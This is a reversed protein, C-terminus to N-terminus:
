GGGGPGVGDVDLAGRHLTVQDSGRDSPAGSSNLLRLDNAVMRGIMDEFSTRARWGLLRHAKSADGHIAKLDAPRQFDPDLDVYSRWNSIGVTEFASAVFQSLSRLVGTAIVFDGPEDQQLMIWMAEVYDPAYGWDRHVDLSGLVLRREYGSAVGAVAKTIKRTVFIDPRLESEHNFLIGCSVFMGYTDRYIEALQHAAVKSVAYPSTPHFPSSENRVSVSPGFMESSSAQYLRIGDARGSRRIGELLNILGNVNTTVIDGPREWSLAVSSSAALNYIESPRFEDIWREVSRLDRIDGALFQTHPDTSNPPNSFHVGLVDYGKAVLFSCLLTGDQGAAGTVLARRPANV